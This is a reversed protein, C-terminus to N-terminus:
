KKMVRAVYEALTEQTENSVSHEIAKKKPWLYNAAEKAAVLRESVSIRDEKYEFGSATLKTVERSPYGLGKWDNGAMRLMIEVPHFGLSKALADLKIQFEKTRRNRVGRKRGGTKERGKKFSTKKVRSM